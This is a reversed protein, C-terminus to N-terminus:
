IFTVSLGYPIYYCVWHGLFSAFLSGSWGIMNETEIFVKVSVIEILYYARIGMQVLYLFIIDIFSYRRLEAQRSCCDEAGPLVM